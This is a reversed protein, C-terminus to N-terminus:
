LQNIRDKPTNCDIPTLYEDEGFHNHLLHIINTTGKKPISLMSASLRAHNLPVVKTFRLFFTAQTNSVKLNPINCYAQKSHSYYSRTETPSTPDMTDISLTTVPPEEVGRGSSTPNQLLKTLNLLLQGRIHIPIEVTGDWHVLFSNAATRNDVPTRQDPKSCSDRLM